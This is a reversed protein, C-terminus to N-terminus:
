LFKYINKKRFLRDDKHFGVDEWAIIKSLGALLYIRVLECLDAGGLSGWLLILFVQVVKMVCVQNTVMVIIILGDSISVQCTWYKKRTSSYFDKIDFQTFICREKKKYKDLFFKSSLTSILAQLWSRRDRKDVVSTVLEFNLWFDTRVTWCATCYHYFPTLFGVKVECCCFHVNMWWSWFIIRGTLLFCRDKNM